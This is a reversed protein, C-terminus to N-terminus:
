VQTYCIFCLSDSVSQVKKDCCINRQVNITMWPAAGDDTSMSPRWHFPSSLIDGEVFVPTFVKRRYVHRATKDRRRNSEFDDPVKMKGPIPRVTM